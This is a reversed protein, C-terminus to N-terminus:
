EYLDEELIKRLKTLGRSIRTRLANEKIGLIEAAESTSHGKIKTLEIPERLTPELGQLIDETGMEINAPDAFITVDGEKTFVENEEKKLTKRIYDVIKRHAIAKVWPLPDRGPEYTHLSKHIGLLAEQLVDEVHSQDFVKKSVIPRLLSSVDSLFSKYASKDGKQALALNKILKKKDV